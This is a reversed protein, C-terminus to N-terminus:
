KWPRRVRNCKQKNIWNKQFTRFRQNLMWFRLEGSAELTNKVDEGSTELANNADEGGTELTNKVYKSYMNKAASSGGGNVAESIDQKM